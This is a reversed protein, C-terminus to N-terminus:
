HVVGGARARRSRRAPAPATAGEPLARAGRFFAAWFRDGAPRLPVGLLARADFRHAARYSFSYFALISRPVVEGNFALDLALHMSAGLLYGVLWPLPMMWAVVALLTMLEWSHLVLVLRRVRGELYYRLFAGPRLNRQRDFVVYDFAHDVDILFGGVAIGATLAWSETAVAAATCAAFTTLLHGGPSM